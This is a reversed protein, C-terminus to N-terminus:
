AMVSSGRTGRQTKNRGEELLDHHEELREFFQLEDAESRSPTSLPIFHAHVGSLAHGARVEADPAQFASLTDAQLRGLSLASCPSVSLLALLLAFAVLLM